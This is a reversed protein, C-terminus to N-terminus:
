AYSFESGYCGYASILSDDYDKSIKEVGKQLGLSCVGISVLVVVIDM